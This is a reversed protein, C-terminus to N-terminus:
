LGSSILEIQFEAVLNRVCYAKGYLEINLAASFDGMSPEAVKGEEQREEQKRNQDMDNRKKNEDEENM